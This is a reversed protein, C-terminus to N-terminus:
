PFFQIILLGHLHELLLEFFLGLLYIPLELLESISGLGDLDVGLLSCGLHGLGELLLARYGGIHELLDQLEEAEFVLDELPVFFSVGLAKEHPLHRSMIDLLHDEVLIVDLERPVSSPQRVGRAVLIVGVHSSELHVAELIHLILADLGLQLLLIVLPDVVQVPPDLLPLSLLSWILISM